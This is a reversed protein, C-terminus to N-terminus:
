MAFIRQFLVYYRPIHIVNSLSDFSSHRFSHVPEDILMTNIPLISTLLECMDPLRAAHGAAWSQLALVEATAQTTDDNRFCENVAKKSSLIHDGGLALMRAALSHRDCEGEQDSLQLLDRASAIHLGCDLFLSGSLRDMEFAYKDYALNCLFDHLMKKNHKNQNNMDIVLVQTESAIALKKLRAKSGYIAALGVINNKLSAEFLPLLKRLQNQHCNQVMIEPTHSRYLHQRIVKPSSM